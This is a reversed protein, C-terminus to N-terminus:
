KLSSLFAAIDSTEHPSLDMPPMVVGREGYEPDPGVMLQARSITQGIQAPTRRSGIRDFSPALSGGIGGIAHCSLCGKDYVARKGRLLAEQSSDLNVAAEHAGEKIEHARVQLGGSPAPLSIIYAALAKAAEPAVRPHPMLEAHGYSREFRAIEAPESSIRSEIFAKTRRASEGALVPGLCGGTTGVSHCNVCQHKFLAAGERALKADQAQDSAGKHGHEGALVQQEGYICVVALLSAIWAFKFAHDKM